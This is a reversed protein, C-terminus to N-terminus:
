KESPKSQDLKYETSQGPEEQKLGYHLIVGLKLLSTGVGAVVSVLIVLFVVIFFAMFCLLATNTEM